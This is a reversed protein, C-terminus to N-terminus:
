SMSRNMNNTSGTEMVSQNLHPFFKNLRLVTFVENRFYRNFIFFIVLLWVSYLYATLMACSYLLNIAATALRDWNVYVDAVTMSIYAAIPTYFLLFAIDILITSVIFNYEKNSVQGPQKRQGMQTVAVRRKSKRLRKLVIIDFALMLGFPIYARFLIALINAAVTVDNATSCFRGFFLPYSLLNPMNAVALLALTGLM